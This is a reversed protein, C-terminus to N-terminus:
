AADYADEELHVEPEMTTRARKVAIKERMREVAEVTLAQMSSNAPHEQPNTHPLPGIINEMEQETLRQVERFGMLDNLEDASFKFEVLVDLHTDDKFDMLLYRWELLAVMEEVEDHIGFNRAVELDLIYPQCIRWTSFFKYREFLKPDNFPVDEPEPQARPAPAPKKAITKKRPPM